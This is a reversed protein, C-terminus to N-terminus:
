YLKAGAANFKQGNKVIVLKGNEIFKGDKAKAKAEAAEVNEVATINGGFFFASRALSAFNAPLYATNAGVTFANANKYFGLSPDAMLVYGAEAAIETATTVGQFKNDSVNTESSAVVPITVTGAPAKILIGTNAPITGGKVSTTNLVSGTAGTVIYANTLGTAHELDLAYPSCYTAWGAATVTVPVAQNCNIVTLGVLYSNNNRVIKFINSGELGDDAVVTYQKTYTGIGTESYTAKATGTSNAIKLGRATESANYFTLTIVTGAKMLKDLTVTVNCQGAGGFEVCNTGATTSYKLTPSGGSDPTYVMKGGISTTVEEGSSIDGSGASATFSYDNAAWVAYLTADANLTYAARDAYAVTGADANDQSTAWGIFTYGSKTYANATLTISGKSVIPDMSGTGGNANYTLTYAEEGTVTIVIDGTTYASGVTVTGTAKNWTYATGATATEGGITVAIANPLVYGSNAAFVATYEAGESIADEGTAGSTATVNTLTHTVNLGGAAGFTVTVTADATGMTLTTSTSNSAGSPSITAGTGSVAWNTVKYGSAPVATITTTGGEAVSTSEASVTGYADTGTSTVASVNHTEVATWKIAYIYCKGSHCIALSKGEGCDIVSSEVATSAAPTISTLASSIASASTGDYIYCTGGVTGAYVITLKGKGTITGTTFYRLNGASPYSSGGGGMYLYSNYNISGVTAAKKLNYMKSDSNDGTVYSLDITNSTSVVTTASRPINANKDKDISQATCYGDFTWNYDTAWASSTGGILALLLFAKKLLNKTKM